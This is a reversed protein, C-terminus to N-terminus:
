FNNFIIINFTMQFFLYHTLVLVLFQYMLIIVQLNLVVSLFLFLNLFFIFNAVSLESSNTFCSRRSDSNVILDNLFLDGGLIDCGFFLDGGFVGDGGLDGDFGFVGFGFVGDIVGDGGLNDGFLDGFLDDGFLDGSFICGGLNDGSLINSLKFSFNSIANCSSSIFFCNGKNFDNNFYTSFLSFSATFSFSSLFRNSNSSSYEFINV